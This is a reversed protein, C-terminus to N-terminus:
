PATILISANVIPVTGGIVPPLVAPAASTHNVLTIVDGAVLPVIVHGDNQTLPVGIGYTSGPILAGNVFISFQNLLTATVSYEIVYIGSVNVIIDSTGPIHTFHTSILGNNSFLVPAEVLVTQAGLNYVYLFPRGAAPPTTPPPPAPCVVCCFQACSKSCHNRGSMKAKIRVSLIELSNKIVRSPNYSHARM